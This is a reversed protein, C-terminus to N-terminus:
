LSAEAQTSNLNKGKPAQPVAYAYLSAENTPLTINQEGVSVELSKVVKATSATSPLQTVAAPFM